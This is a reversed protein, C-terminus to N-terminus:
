NEFALVYQDGRVDSLVWGFEYRTASVLPGATVPFAALMSGTEVKWVELTGDPRGLLALRGAPCAAISTAERESTLESQQGTDDVTVVRGDDLALFIMGDAPNIDFDIVFGDTDHLKRSKESALNAQLLKGDAMAVHIVDQTENLAKLLLMPSRDPTFHDGPGEVSFALDQTAITYPGVNMSGPESMRLSRRAFHHAAVQRPLLTNDDDTRVRWASVTGGSDATLILPDRASDATVILSPTGSYGRLIDLTRGDAGDCLALGPVDTLRISLARGDLLFHKAPHGHVSWGLTFAARDRMGTSPQSPSSPSAVSADARDTTPTPANEHHTTGDGDSVPSLPEVLQRRAMDVLQTGETGVFAILWPKTEIQQLAEVGFGLEISDRSEGDLNLFTLQGVGDVVWVTESAIGMHTIPRESIRKRWLTNDTAALLIQEELTGPDEPLVSRALDFDGRLLALSARTLLSQFRSEAALAAQSRSEAVSWTMAVTSILVAALIACAAVMAMRHRRVTCSVEYLATRRRAAIPEAGRHRRLDERFEAASQYRAAPQAATARLIMADLDGALARPSVGRYATGLALQERHAILSPRESFGDSISRLVAETSTKSTVMRAPRAVLMEFLLLGAAYIDTAPTPEQGRLQEPSMYRATGLMGAEATTTVDFGPLDFRAIGFDIVRLLFHSDHSEVLINAPKLDRHVIGQGHFAAMADLLQGFLELRDPITLTHTALFDDLRLGDVYEAVLFPRGDSRMGADILSAVHQHRIRAMAAIERMFRARSSPSALTDRALKVAVAKGSSRQTARYVVGSAGSGLTEHLQYGSPQESPAAPPPVPEAVCPPREGLLASTSDGDVQLMTELFGALKADSRAIRNLESRREAHDLTILRDFHKHAKDFPVAPTPNM